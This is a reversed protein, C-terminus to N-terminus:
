DGQMTLQYAIEEFAKAMDDLQSLWVNHAQRALRYNEPIDTQFDRGHPACLQVARFADQIKRVAEVHNAVLETKSTGNINIKPIIIM